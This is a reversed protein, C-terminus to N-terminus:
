VRRFITYDDISYLDKNILSFSDQDNVGFWKDGLSIFLDHRDHFVVIDFEMQFNPNIEKYDDSERLYHIVSPHGFEKKSVRVGGTITKYRGVFLDHKEPEFIKLFLLNCDVTGRVHPQKDYERIAETALKIDM